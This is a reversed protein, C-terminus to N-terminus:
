ISKSEYSVKGNLVLFNLFDYPSKGAFECPVSQNRGPAQKNTLLLDLTGKEALTVHM